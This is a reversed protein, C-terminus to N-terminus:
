PKGATRFESPSCGVWSRFARRFNAADQYGLAAAIAEVSDGTEVLYQCAWDNLRASKISRFSTGELQLRRNLTRESMHFNRAAAALDPLPPESSKLLAALHQTYPKEAEDGLQKVRQSLLLQAQTWLAENYYPSRVDLWRSPVEMSSHQWDFSVPSHLWRAYEPAYNPRAFGLRFVGDELRQGIVTEIYDQVQIVSAEAHFREVEGLNELFILGVSMGRLNSALEVKVYSAHLRSFNELVQLGKRVTPAAAAAAGMPGLAAMHSQGGIILGLTEDDSASRANELFTVFAGIAIDGGTELSERDLSTDAFLSAEPIDRALMERLVIRAYVPNISHM